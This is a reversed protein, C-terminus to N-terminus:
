HSETRSKSVPKIDTQATRELLLRAEPCCFLYFALPTRLKDWHLHPYQAALTHLREVATASEEKQTM